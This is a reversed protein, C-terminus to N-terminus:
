AVEALAPTPPGSHRGSHLRRETLVKVFAEVVQADFQSGSCRRLEKIAADFSMAARYPRDSVMAEFSDAVFVIRSALPIDEGLLGDPYGAGDAREHSSRVSSAVPALAPAALVIREGILTHRKMFGWEADDLPGRKNIIESPIAVKGIDHLQAVLRVHAVERADLGLEEAATVALDSVGDLHGQLDPHHEALARLM